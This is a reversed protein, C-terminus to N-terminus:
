FYGIQALITVVLVLSVLNSIFNFNHFNSRSRIIFFAAVATILLWVPLLFRHRGIIIGAVKLNDIQSFVGGYTYFMVLLLGALPAARL